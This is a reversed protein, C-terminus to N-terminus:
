IAHTVTPNSFSVPRLATLGVEGFDAFREQILDHFLPFEAPTSGYGMDNISTLTSTAVNDSWNVFPATAFTRSQRLSRHAVAKSVRSWSALM